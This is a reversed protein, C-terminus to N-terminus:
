DVYYGAEKAEKLYRPIHGDRPDGLFVPSFPVLRSWAIDERELQDRLDDFESRVEALAELARCVNAVRRGYEAKVADCIRISASSRAHVLRQRVVELAADIDRELASLEALRTRLGTTSGSAEGLLEAVGPRFAPAPAEEIQRQLERREALVESRRKHLEAQKDHHGAYEPDSTLPPVRYAEVAPASKKFVAM